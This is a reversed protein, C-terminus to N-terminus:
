KFWDWCGGVTTQMETESLVLHKKQPTDELVVLELDEPLNIGTVEQLKQKPNLKFENKFNLDEKIKKKLLEM